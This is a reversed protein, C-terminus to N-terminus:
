QVSIQKTKGNTNKPVTVTLVGNGFSANVKKEDIPGPMTFTRIFSGYSIESLHKREDDQKGPLDFKLIYNGKDESVECSPSFEFETLGNQRRLDSFESFLRDFSDQLRTMERFPSFIGSESMRNILSKSM